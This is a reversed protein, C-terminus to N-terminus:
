AGSFEFPGGNPGSNRQSSSPKSETVNTADLYSPDLWGCSSLLLHIDRLRSEIDERQLAYCDCVLDVALGSTTHGDFAQVLIEAPGNLVLSGGNDFRFLHLRGGELRILADIRLPPLTSDNDSGQELRSTRGPTPEGPLRPLTDLPASLKGSLFRNQAWPVIRNALFVSQRVQEALTQPGEAGLLRDALIAIRDRVTEGPQEAMLRRLRRIRWKESPSSDGSSSLVLDAVFGTLSQALYKASELDGCDVLGVIDEHATGIRLIARDFVLRAVNRTDLRALLDEYLQSTALPTSHALRHLFEVELESFEMVSAPNHEQDFPREHLRDLLAQAAQVTWHEIDLAFEDIRVGQVSGYRPLDIPPGGIIFIDIDSHSTGLGEVLSGALYITRGEVLVVERIAERFGSM